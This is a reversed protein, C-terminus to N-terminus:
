KDQIKSFTKKEKREPPLKAALINLFEQAALSQSRGRVRQLHLPRRIAFGSVPIIALSNAKIENELALRSIVAVGLGAIVARKIAETSSLSLVPQANVGRQALAQEVVARTGSGPERMVWPEKCLDRVAVNRRLLPHHPPAVAVLEDKYFVRSELEENEILGETL